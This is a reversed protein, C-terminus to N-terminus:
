IIKRITDLMCRNNSLFPLFLRDFESKWVKKSSNIYTMQMHLLCSVNQDYICVPGNFIDVMDNIYMYMSFLTSSLVCGQKVGVSTTFSPTSANGLKVSFSVEKYMSEMIQLLCFLFFYFNGSINFLQLKYLLAKRNVLDFAKRFDVFCVYLYIKKKFMNNDIMMKLTFIHDSTRSGKKFGIQEKAILENEELYTQLRNYM